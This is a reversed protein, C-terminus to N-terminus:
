GRNGIRPTAGSIECSPMLQYDVGGDTVQPRVLKCPCAAPACQLTVDIEQKFGIIVPNLSVTSPSVKTTVPYPSHRLPYKDTCEGNSPINKVTNWGQKQM